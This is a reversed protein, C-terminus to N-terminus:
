LKAFDILEFLFFIRVYVFYNLVIEFAVRERQKLNSYNIQSYSKKKLYIFEFQFKLKQKM